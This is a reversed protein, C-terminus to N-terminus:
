IQGYVARDPPAKAGGALTAGRGAPHGNVLRHVVLKSGTKYFARLFQTDAIAEIRGCIHTRADVLLLELCHHVVDFDAFSLAGLQQGAAIAQSVASEGLAPEM